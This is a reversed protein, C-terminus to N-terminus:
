QQTDEPLNKLAQLAKAAWPTDPFKDVLDKYIARAQDARTLREHCQAIFFRLQPVQEGQPNKAIEQRLVAIAKILDVRDPTRQKSQYGMQEMLDEEAEAGRSGAATVIKQLKYEEEAVMSDIETWVTELWKADLALSDATSAVHPTDAARIGQAFLLSLFMFKIAAM